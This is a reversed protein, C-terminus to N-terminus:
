RTCRRRTSLPRRPGNRGDGSQSGKDIEWGGAGYSKRESSLLTQQYHNVFVFPRLDPSASAGAGHSAASRQSECM